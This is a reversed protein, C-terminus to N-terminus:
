ILAETAQAPKGFYKQKEFLIDQRRECIDIPYIGSFVSTSFVSEPLGTAKVMGKYSLYALSDAHISKCVDEVSMRAAILDEQRPIDIGYFDPYKHPPCSIRVHVERAGAGRILKIIKKMTTGRVLSDDVVIVRKGEIVERIPNLKVQVSMERLHQEPKIFTRHIYRNKILGHDFPIRSQKAYGLAAPIASDPVPIVVDAKVPSEKALIKGLNKRVSNVRKGLLISDPRSFYIFEFIDLKQTGKVIQRIEYGANNVVIMEGPAVDRIYEATMLDFASTESAFVYGGNLKAMALPRIGCKDRLAILNDKDMLLLSFVGTFLPFSKEVADALSFGKHLYYRIAEYMLESDNLGYTHIGKKALFVELKTTSPLNGNHALAFLKDHLVPQNHHSSAGGSTSYRNHGIALHGTLKKLDEESYVHAVLGTGKHSHLAKGDSVVIGSSEQGRHQLAYLGFYTLRAADLTNGFIGFIGCKEGVQDRM